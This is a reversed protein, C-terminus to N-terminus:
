KSRQYARADEWLYIGGIALLLGFIGGLVTDHWWPDIPTRNVVQGRVVLAAKTGEALKMIKARTFEVAEEETSMRPAQITVAVDNIEVLAAVSYELRGERSYYYGLGVVLGFVAGLLLLWWWRRIYEYYRWTEKM